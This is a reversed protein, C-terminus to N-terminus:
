PIYAPGQSRQPAGAGGLGCGGPTFEWMFVCTGDLKSEEESHGGQLKERCDRLLPSLHSAAEQQKKPSLLGGM